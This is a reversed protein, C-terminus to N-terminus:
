GHHRNRLHAHLLRFLGLLLPVLGVIPLLEADHEGSPNTSEVLWWFGLGAVFLMSGIVTLRVGSRREDSATRAGAESVQMLPVPMTAVTGPESGGKDLRFPPYEDRMLLVYALVRYVWRNIGMLLDFLTPSYRGSFLLVLMAVLTLLGLLGGSALALAANRTPWFPVGTLLVVILLHPLALLWSKVLVRGRSLSSPYDVTLDAPYAADAELSFPPYGDTALLDFGYFQVRWTWRLVGVNFDFIARPYSGTLLIALGAVVTLVVTATWLLSLVVLHPIALFWKVLWQWRGLDPDIRGALRVPWVEPQTPEDSRVWGPSTMERVRM